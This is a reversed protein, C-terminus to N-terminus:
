PNKNGDINNKWYTFAKPIDGSFMAYPVVNLWEAFRLMEKEKEASGANYAAFYYDNKFDDRTKM